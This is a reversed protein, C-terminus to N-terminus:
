FQPPVWHARPDDKPYDEAFAAEIGAVVDKKKMAASREAWDSGLVPTFAELLQGITMRKLYHDATPQWSARFDPKIEDVLGDILECRGRAGINLWVATAFALQKKKEASSLTRYATFQDAVSEIDLWDLKLEAKAAALLEAAHSDKTDGSGSHPAVIGGQINAYSYRYPLGSLTNAILTFAGLDAAVSASGAMAAKVIQARNAALDAVLAASLGPQESAGSAGEDETAGCGGSQPQNSLLARFRAQDAWGKHVIPEGSNHDFTVLVMGIGKQEATFASHEHHILNDIATLRDEVRELETCLAQEDAFGDPLEEDYLATELVEHRAQLASQEELLEAPVDGPEPDLRVCGDMVDWQKMAIRYGSWDGQHEEALRTLKEGALRYVLESDCLYKRNEFLDDETAGGATTYAKLGVFKAVGSDSAVAEGLLWQRYQRASVGTGLAEVAALQRSHDEVVALAQMDDTDLKGARYLELLDPAVSGLRLVRKVHNVSLGFEAGIDKVSKGDNVLTTFAALQDAPHMNARAFNEALSGAVLDEGEGAVSCPVPYSAPIRKAKVLAKLAALRRGGATVEFRKAKIQEVRLNQLVGHTAISERLQKDEDASASAQRVNKDSLWLQSLPIMQITM